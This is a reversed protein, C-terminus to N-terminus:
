KSPMTGLQSLIGILSVKFDPPIEQFRTHTDRSDASGELLSVDGYSKEMLCSLGCAM